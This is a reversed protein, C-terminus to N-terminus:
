ESDTHGGIRNREKTRWGYLVREATRTSPLGFMRTIEAEPFGYMVATAVQRERLSCRSLEYVVHDNEVITTAPDTMYLRDQGYLSDAFDALRWVSQQVRHRELEGPFAVLCTGLFHGSTNTADEVEKRLAQGRFRPLAVAVTATALDTRLDHDDALKDLLSEDANLDVGRQASIRFIFGTALWGKLVALAFRGMENAFTTYSSGRRAVHSKLDRDGLHYALERELLLVDDADYSRLGEYIEDRAVAAALTAEDGSV